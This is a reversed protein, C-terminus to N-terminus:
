TEFTGYPPYLFPFLVNVYVVLSSKYPFLMFFVWVKVSFTNLIYMNSLSFFFSLMPSLLQHLQMFTSFSSTLSLFFFSARLYPHCNVRIRGSRLCKIWNSKPFIYYEVGFRIIYIRIRNMTLGSYCRMFFWISQKSESEFWGSM